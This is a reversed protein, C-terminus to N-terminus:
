NKIRKMAPEEKDSQEFSMVLNDERGDWVMQAIIRGLVKVGTTRNWHLLFTFISKQQLDVCSCYYDLFQNGFVTNCFNRWYGSGYVHWYYGWGLWYCLHDLDCNLDETQGEEIAYRATREIDLLVDRGHGQVGWIVAQPLDRESERGESLIESLRDMSHRWGLEAGDRYYSMAKEYDKERWFHEGLLHIAKPNNLAAAKELWELKEHKSLFSDESCKVQAWGCGEMASKQLLNYNWFSGLFKVAFFWGLPKETKEFAKGMDDWEVDKLVSVVFISEEHGKAAAKEFRHLDFSASSRMKEM